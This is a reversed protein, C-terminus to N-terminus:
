GIKRLGAKALGAEYVEEIRTVVSEIGYDHAVRKRAATALQQRYIKDDRLRTIGMALDEPHGSAVLIAEIGDDVADPIGGVKTAVIAKESAMAELLAVPLGERVSSMVWADMANLLDGIDSRQGTFHVADSLGINDVFARLSGMEPGDGVQLWQVDANELRILQLAKALDPYAKAGIVRGVSGMLFVNDGVGFESRIAARGKDLKNRAPIPVGNPILIIKSPAIKDRQIRIDRVDESVAIHRFTFRSLVKDVWSQWAKKWPEKGHETTILVPVRAGIGAIRAWLSAFFMHSHVVKVDHLKLWSMLRYLDTICTRWRVPFLVVSAGTVEVDPVLDGRATLCIVTHRYKERNVVQLFNVLMKEAGGVHLAGIFHVIHLQKSPNPATSTM